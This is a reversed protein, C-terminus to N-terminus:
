WLLALLAGILLMLIVWNVLVLGSLVLLPLLAAFVQITIFLLRVFVSSRLDLAGSVLGYTEILTSNFLATTARLFNATTPDNHFLAIPDSTEPMKHQHHPIAITRPQDPSSSRFLNEFPAAFFSLFCTSRHTPDM